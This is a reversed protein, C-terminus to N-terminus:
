KNLPLAPCTARYTSEDPNIYRRWEELTLNRNAIYCARAKWSELDVDWLIITNDDSGSALTKGEPSFAVGWVDATHGTLPQGLRQRTAADWLIITDDWSGSALTKGDPSFAVSWVGATHGTLPQGLRQRTAVDWLIITRDASGSALTKGDPSFAVSFVPGTHGTLPQGLRQRTAVDWLIITRDASGSALTKGDPSFAVSFVSATHGTLPQGLRQRTAVDWLIITNDEGGSALTKGDPSFAVSWVEATHGRMYRIIQSNSTLSGLINGRAELNNDLRLAEVGLLLALSFNQDRNFFSQAALRRSNAQTEATMARITAGVALIALVMFVLIVMAAGLSILRLRRVRKRDVFRRRWDLIAPALVDHFIEYRATHPQSLSPAIPRLVRADALKKLVAMVREAPRAAYTVLDDANQAIKTGSPTVMRDFFSSCVEQEPATLQNMVADLHTRVIREAGGLRHLTELRLNRSGIRIEEEWLRTLVMQLFPTEIRV